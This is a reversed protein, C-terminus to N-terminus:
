WDELESFTAWQESRTQEDAVAVAISEPSTPPKLEIV